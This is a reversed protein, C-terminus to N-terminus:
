SFNHFKKTPKKKTEQSVVVVGFHQKLTFCQLCCFRASLTNCSNFRNCLILIIEIRFAFFSHLHRLINSLSSITFPFHLINDKRADCFSLYDAHLGEACHMQVRLTLDLNANKEEDSRM